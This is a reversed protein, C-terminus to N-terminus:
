QPADAHRPIIRGRLIVASIKKTHRIDELPNADLLVLDASKGQEVTGFSTSMGLFEAPRRTATELAQMPTLGADVLDALEDQITGNKADPPLDTGALLGVGARQMMAVLEMDKAIVRDAWRLDEATYPTDSEAWLSHVAVLTPCQWTQNKRFRAMLAAAKQADFSEVIARTFASRMNTDPPPEKHELAALSRYYMQVEEAHVEAERTSSGVLVGWFRGGLHEISHQGLDSAEEPLVTPPIHGVYPIHDRRAEEAVAVYIDHPIADQVKIFDVGRQRLMDVTQRAETTDKVSIFMPMHFPLPGQVLPGAVVLHPGLITGANTEQRLRLIDDLPSGMDRLGTIGEALYASLARKGDEYAGLHVHMNWLGPILYKGHGNLVEAGAPVKIKASPAVVAIRGDLILVSMGPRPPHGACDIVTVDRIVLPRTSPGQASLPSVALVTLIVFVVTRTHM